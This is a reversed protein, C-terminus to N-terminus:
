QAVEDPLKLNKMRVQARLNVVFGVLAGLIYTLAYPLGTMPTIVQQVLDGVILGLFGAFLLKSAAKIYPRPLHGQFALDFLRDLLSSRKRPAQVDAL